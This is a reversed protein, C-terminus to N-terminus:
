ALGGANQHNEYTYIYIYTKKAPHCPVHLKGRIPPKSQKPNTTQNVRWVLRANLDLDLGNLIVQFMCSRRAVFPELESM